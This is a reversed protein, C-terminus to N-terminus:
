WKQDSHSGFQSGFQSGINPPRAFRRDCPRVARLGFRKGKIAGGRSFESQIYEPLTIIDQAVGYLKEFEPRTTDNTFLDLARGRSKYISVTHIFKWRGKLFCAMRQIIERIDWEKEENERFAVLNVDFGSM